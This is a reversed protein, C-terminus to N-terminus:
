VSSSGRRFQFRRARARRKESRQGVAQEEGQEAM